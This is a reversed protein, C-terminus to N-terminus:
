YEQENYKQVVLPQFQPFKRLFQRQLHFVGFYLLCFQKDIFFIERPAECWHLYILSPLEGPKKITSLVLYNIIIPIDFYLFVEM